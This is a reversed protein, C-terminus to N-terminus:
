NAAHDPQGPTNTGGVDAGLGDGQVLADESPLAGAPLSTVIVPSSTVTGLAPAADDDARLVVGFHTALAKVIAVVVLLANAITLTHEIAFPLVAAVIVGAVELSIKWRGRLGFTTATTIVLAVFQLITVTTAGTQILVQLGGLILLAASFITPAYKQFISNDVNM